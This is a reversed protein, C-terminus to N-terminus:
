YNTRIKKALACFITIPRFKEIKTYDSVKIIPSLRAVKCFSPLTVTKFILNYMTYESEYFIFMKKLGFFQLINCCRYLVQYTNLLRFEMQQAHVYM